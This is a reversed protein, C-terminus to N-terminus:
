GGRSEKKSGIAQGITEAIEEAYREVDEGNEGEVMVRCLPETGSYRVLTRGRGGLAKEVNRIVKELEPVAAFDPKDRVPVNILVQPFITMMSGLDSLRRGSRLMASLLQLASVMGDGTTHHDLFIIHGSNEGGLVAGEEKMAEVVFRDGVRTTVHRVGMDKLAFQLGMNSMITSVVVRNRLKGQEKLLWASIALIQDGSLVSGKEDVAILRDGDGDFALGAQAGTKLVENRLAEPYQSGCRDNINIGDPRTFLPTVAAGLKQFLAPAIGSTAGNACDLV